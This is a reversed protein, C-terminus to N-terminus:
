GLEYGILWWLREMPGGRELWLHAGSRVAILRSHPYRALARLLCFAIRPSLKSIIVTAITHATIITRSHRM